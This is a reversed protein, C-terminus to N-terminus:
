PFARRLHEPLALVVRKLARGMDDRIPKPSFTDDPAPDSVYFRWLRAAGELVIEQPVTGARRQLDEVFTAPPLSGKAVEELAGIMFGLLRGADPYSTGPTQRGEILDDVHDMLSEYGVSITTLEHYHQPGSSLGAFMKHLQAMRERQPPYHASFKVGVRELGAFIRVALVAAAFVFRPNNAHTAAPLYYVFGLADASLETNPSFRPAISRDLAVHGLEHCLIFIESLGALADTLARVQPTIAFSAPKIRPKRGFFRHHRRWAEFLRALDAALADVGSKDAMEPEPDGVFGTVRSTAGCVARIFDM